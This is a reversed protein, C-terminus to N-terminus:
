THDRQSACFPDRRDGGGFIAGLGAGPHILGGNRADLLQRPGTRNEGNVVLFEGRRRSLMDDRCSWGLRWSSSMLYETSCAACPVLIVCAIMGGKERRGQRCVISVMAMWCATHIKGQSRSSDRGPARTKSVSICLDDVELAAGTSGDQGGLDGAYVHVKGVGQAISVHSRPINGNRQQGTTALAMRPPHMKQCHVLLFNQLSYRGRRLYWLGDIGM